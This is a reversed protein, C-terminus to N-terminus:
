FDLKQLLVGLGLQISRFIKTHYIKQIFFNPGMPSGPTGLTGIEPGFRPINEFSLSGPGNPGPPIQWVM